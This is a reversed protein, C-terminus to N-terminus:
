TSIFDTIPQVPLVDLHGGRCVSGFGARSSDAPIRLSTTEDPPTILIQSPRVCDATNPFVAGETLPGIGFYASGGGALTVLMEAVPGQQIYMGTTRNTNTPLPHGQADLMQLGPWGYMQCPASGTNTLRVEVRTHMMASGSYVAEASLSATHCRVAAPPPQDSNSSVRRPEMVGGAAPGFFRITAAVAPLMKAEFGVYGFAYEGEATPLKFVVVGNGHMPTPQDPSPLVFCGVEGSVTVPLVVPKSGYPRLVHGAFLSGQCMETVPLPVGQDSIGSVLSLSYPKGGPAPPFGPPYSLQIGFQFNCETQWGKIYPGLYDIPCGAKPSPIPEVRAFSAPATPPPLGTGSNRGAILRLNVLAFGALVLLAAAAAAFKLFRSRASASPQTSHTTALTTRLSDVVSQDIPGLPGPRMLRRLMEDFEDRM